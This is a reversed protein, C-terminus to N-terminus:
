NSQQLVPKSKKLLWFSYFLVGAAILACISGFLFPTEVGAREWLFGAIVSSPLQFVGLTTFTLGLMTGKIQPDSIKVTITKQMSETMASFIGYMPFLLWVTIPSAATAFLFYTLAFVCYGGIMIKYPGIKDSLKGFPFAFGAFFINALAYLIPVLFPPVGVDAARLFLFADSSNGLAFVAIALLFLRYHVPLIKLSFKPFAHTYKIKKQEKVFIILTLLAFFSAVFSFLFLTRLNENFLPLLLFALLPGAVAGLTDMMKHFGYALGLHKPSISEAILADRPAQRMGKGFRDSFRVILVHWPATAFALMPKSIMSLGYGLVAPLKRKKLKDSFWGSFVKLLSATTEAIGEILGVMPLSAGLTKTLFIPILPYIMDTSADNLFSVVGMAKINKPIQNPM